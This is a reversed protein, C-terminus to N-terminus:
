AFFILICDVALYDPTETMMASDIRLINVEPLITLQSYKLFVVFLPNKSVNATLRYVQPHHFPINMLREQQQYQNGPPSM